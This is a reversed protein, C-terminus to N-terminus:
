KPLLSSLARCSSLLNHQKLVLADIQYNKLFNQFDQPTDKLELIHHRQGLQMRPWAFSLPIDSKTLIIALFIPEKLQLPEEIDGFIKVDRGPAMPMSQCSNMKWEEQPEGIVFYFESPKDFQPLEYMSHIRVKRSQVQLVIVGFKSRLPEKIGDKSYLEIYSFAELNCAVENLVLDKVENEPLPNVPTSIGENALSVLLLWFGIQFICLLLSLTGM